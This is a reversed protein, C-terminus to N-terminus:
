EGVARPRRTSLGAAGVAAEISGFLSVVTEFAPWDSAMKGSWDVREPARGRFFAFARLARIVGARTWDPPRSRPPPLAPAVVPALVRGCRLCNEGDLVPRECRCGRATLPGDTMACLLGGGTPTM